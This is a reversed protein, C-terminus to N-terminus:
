RTSEMASATSQGDALLGQLTAAAEEAVDMTRCFAAIAAATNGSYRGYHTSDRAHGAAVEDALWQRMQQMAQPLKSAAASLDGLVSAVDSPYRLGNNGPMTAYNLLRAAEDIGAAIVRTLEHDHPGDPSAPKAGPETVIEIM